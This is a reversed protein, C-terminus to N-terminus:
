PPLRVHRDFEAIVSDLRAAACVLPEPRQELQVLGGEVPAADPQPHPAPPAPCYRRTLQVHAHGQPREAERVEGDPQEGDRQGAHLEVSVM